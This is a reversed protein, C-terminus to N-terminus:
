ELRTYKGGAAVWGEDGAADRVKYWGISEELLTLETDLALRKIVDSTTTPGMRMNLGEILVVVHGAATEEGTPEAEPVETPEASTTAEVGASTEESAQSTTGVVDTRTDRYEGMIGSIVFLVVVLAVWPVVFRVIRLGYATDFKGRDDEDM